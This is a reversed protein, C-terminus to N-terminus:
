GILSMIEQYAISSISENDCLDDEITITGLKYRLIALGPERDKIECSENRGYVGIQLSYENVVATINKAIEDPNVVPEKGDITVKVFDITYNKDFIGMNWDEIDTSEHVEMYELESYDFKYACGSFAIILLLLPMILYKQEM